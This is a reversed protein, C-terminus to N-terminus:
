YYASNQSFRGPEYASESKQFVKIRNKDTAVFTVTM